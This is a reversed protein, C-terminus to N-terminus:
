KKKRSKKTAEVEQFILETLSRPDVEVLTALLILDRMSWLTISKFRNDFARWGMKLDTQVITKPIHDFIQNFETIYKSTILARVRAYRPDKM